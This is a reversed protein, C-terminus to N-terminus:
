HEGGQADTKGGGKPRALQQGTAKGKGELPLGSALMKRKAARFTELAAALAPTSITRKTKM